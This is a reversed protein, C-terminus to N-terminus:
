HTANNEHAARHERTKHQERTAHLARSLARSVEANEVRSAIEEMDKESLSHRSVDGSMNKGAIGLTSEASKRELYQKYPKRKKMNLKSAYIKMKDFHIDEELLALRIWDRKMDLESRVTSDSSYIQLYVDPTAGRKYPRTDRMVYVAQVNKLVLAVADENKFVHEIARAFANQVRKAQLAKRFSPDLSQLFAKNIDSLKQM